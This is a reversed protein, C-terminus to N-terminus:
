NEIVLSKLKNRREIFAEYRENDEKAFTLTLNAQKLAENYQGQQELFYALGDYADASEPHLEINFKFLQLAGSLENKGMLSYALERIAWEPPAITEGYQWSLKEYYNLISKPGDTLAKYPMRLSLFLNHYANFLGAPATLGHAVDDFADSVFKFNAPKNSLLFTHIDDYDARMDGGEEGINMYLYKDLSETKSFFTKLKKRTIKDWWVAPSFAIYATFMNPRSQLIHLVLLGGISAGSVITFDNTRYTKNIHPMLEMEIFDLYNDGGGGKGVPGRPDYNVTPTLDRLRDTNEIGVIIVEPAADSARMREIMSSLMNDISGLIYIVPYAKVSSTSYSQPLKVTVIREENLYKSQLVERVKVSDDAHILPATFLFLFTFCVSYFKPM